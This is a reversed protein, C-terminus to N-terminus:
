EKVRSIDAGLSKLRQYFEGYGRDLHELGFIISTGRAALAALVLTAGARLDAVNLVANHLSVPGTVKIAHMKKDDFINFNYTESPDTVTPAFLKIKAGMKRLEPVYNFRNEYITEHIISEGKAKTMLVAWSGQWDTMFGPYFTTTVQSKRLPGKYFFRIGNKKEEFGAGVEKLMNLFESIGVRNINKIFVDGETIIGAVAFTVIENRDPMIKFRAGKLKKVGIIEITRIDTRKIKAGM